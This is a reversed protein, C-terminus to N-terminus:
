RSSREVAPVLDPAPHHPQAETAAHPALRASAAGALVVRAADEAHGYSAFGGSRALSTGDCDLLTWHYDGGNDEIILFKMSSESVVVAGRHTGTTARAKQTATAM